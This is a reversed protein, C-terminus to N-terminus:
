RRRGTVLSHRELMGHDAVDVFGAARLHCAITEASARVREPPREGGSGPLWDVAMVAGGSRLLRYAEAYTSAPEALEHHLNVMVVLDAIGDELPVSTEGALVPRIAGAGTSARHETMWAVMAPEVDAAYVTAGPAMRAFTEAFTGTGAGIEVIVDPAPKGLADWMVEPDLDELRAPDNLHDLHATDFKEYEM